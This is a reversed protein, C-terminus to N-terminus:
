RQRRGNGDFERHKHCRCGRGRRRGGEHVPCPFPGQPGAVVPGEGVV